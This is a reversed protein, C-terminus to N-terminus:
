WSGNNYESRELMRFSHVFVFLIINISKEKGLPLSIVMVFLIHLVHTTWATLPGSFGAYNDGKWARTNNMKIKITGIRTEM